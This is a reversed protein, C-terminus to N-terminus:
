ARRGTSGSSALHGRTDRAYRLDIRHHGSCILFHGTALLGPRDEWHGVRLADIYTVGAVSACIGYIEGRDPLEGLQWGQRAAAGYLPHLFEELAARLDAALRGGNHADAVVVELQVAVQVYDPGVVVLDTAANRHRDIHTRVDRLLAARPVPKPVRSAPVIILSVVGPRSWRASPAAGLDRLPVCEARGVEPSALRALDEYDEMTVARGRHRVVTAGRDRVLDAREMDVGGSADMLNVVSDVYPVATRLQSVAGAAKNGRAGGGTRYQRLRISNRGRPPIRGRRGDGFRIEGSQRDIVYHRDDPGSAMFDVVPDWRRWIAQIATSDGAREIELAAALLERPAGDVDSVSEAERVQLVEGELVPTRLVQFLQGPTAHSSGLVENELTVQQAAPVTNRLIGRLTQLGEAGADQFVARLWYLPVREVFDTRAAAKGPVILAVSGDRTFGDSEDVPDLNQWGSGDWTQWLVMPRKVLGSGISPLRSSDACVYLNLSHNVFTNPQRTACGLYLAARLGCPFTFLPFAEGSAVRDSVDDVVREDSTLVYEPRKAVTLEYSVAVSQISPPALTSSRYRMGAAPQGSIAPEWREDEGYHGSVLRARVWAGERGRVVTPSFDAPIRFSVVGDVRFARTEDTEDLGKWRTGEWYEWRVRPHGEVNVRPIPPEDTADHANTLRVNLAVATGPHAFAEASTLYLTSGFVPRVGFPYFDKSLDVDMGDALAADIALQARSVDAVLELRRARSPTWNGPGADIVRCTLWRSRRGHWEHEPWAGPADFTVRGSQRLGNTSDSVPVLPVDGDRAPVSWRVSWRAREASGGPEIDFLISLTRIHELGYVTTDGIFLAHDTAQAPGLGRADDPMVADALRFLDTQLNNAPDLSFLHRLTATTLELPRLTEFIVPETDGDGAAAAVQTRAPVRTGSPANEVPTFTLPVSASAPPMPSVGLLDLYAMFNRDLARNLRVAVIEWYRAFIGILAEAPPDPRSWELRAEAQLRRCVEDFIDAGSRREIAPPPRYTM